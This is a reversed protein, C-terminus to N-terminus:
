KSSGNSSDELDSIQMDLAEIKVGRTVAVSISIILAIFLGAIVLSLIIVWQKYRDNPLSNNYAAKLDPENFSLSPVATSPQIKPDITISSQMTRFDLTASIPIVIKEQNKSQSQQPFELYGQTIVGTSM